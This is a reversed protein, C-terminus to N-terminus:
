VSGEAPPHRIQKQTTCDNRKLGRISIQHTNCRHRDAHVPVDENRLSFDVNSGIVGIESDDGAVKVRGYKIQPRLYTRTCTSGRLRALGAGLRRRGAYRALSLPQLSEITPQHQSVLSAGCSDGCGSMLWLRAGRGGAQRRSASAPSLLDKITRISCVCLVGAAAACCRLVLVVASRRDGLVAVPPQHSTTTTTHHGSAVWSCSCLEVVGVGLVLVWAVLLLLLVLV